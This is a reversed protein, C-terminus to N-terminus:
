AHFIRHQGRQHFGPGASRRAQRRPRNRAPLARPAPVASGRNGGGYTQGPMSTAACPSRRASGSPSTSGRTVGRGSPMPSPRASVDSPMGRLRAAVVSDATAAVQWRRDAYRNSAVLPSSSATRRSRDIRPTPPISRQGCRRAGTAPAPHMERRRYGAKHTRQRGLFAAWIRQRVVQALRRRADRARRHPAVGRLRPKIAVRGPM